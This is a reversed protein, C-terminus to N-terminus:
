WFYFLWEPSTTKSVRVCLPRVVPPLRGAAPCSRACGTRTWWLHQLATRSRGSSGGPLGWGLCIRTHYTEDLGAAEARNPRAVVISYMYVLVKQQKPKSRGEAMWCRAMFGITLPCSTIAWAWDPVPLVAMIEMAINCDTSMCVLSVCTNHREGVRSSATCIWFTQTKQVGITIWGIRRSLTTYYRTCCYIIFIVLRLSGASNMIKEQIWILGNLLLIDNYYTYM